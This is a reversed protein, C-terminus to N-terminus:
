EGRNGRGSIREVEEFSAIGDVVLQFGSQGLSTFQTGEVAKQLDGTVLNPRQMADRLRDTSVLLEFVARRGAHGTDLCKLCGVATYVYDPNQGNANLVTRQAATPAIRRRCFPCLVRVLRQAVVIQLGQSVLYPEVGLDLLRFVTGLTDRTHVTSLVMHGTIAAQMATRATEADRIEGLMIVDPDQRLVSRLINSFTKGSAEDVPMQTTQDIQMEVPDEITVVNRQDLEISRLLAYLTTTKGSGTPGAVLVMGADQKIQEALEHEMWKPMKLDPLLAPANDEDLIRIVLKQGNVAPAFSVRYDIKHVGGGTRRPTQSSFRGEQITNRQAIDIDSLVKVLTAIKVGAVLPLKAVDAMVGDVRLRIGYSGQHPELHIDTTRSRICILLLLRFLDVAERKGKQATKKAAHMITGRASYLQIDNESFSQDPMSRALTELAEDPDDSMRASLPSKSAKPEPAEEIVPVLDDASLMEEDEVVQPDRFTIFTTGVKIVDGGKLIQSTILKGNVATGNRSKLDRVQWGDPTVEIVCHQRSLLNDPLVLDVGIQRGIYLQHGTLILNRTKDGERIEVYPQSM